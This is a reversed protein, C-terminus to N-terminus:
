RIQDADRVAGAFSLSGIRRQTHAVEAITLYKSSFGFVQTFMFWLYPQVLWKGVVPMDVAEAFARLLWYPRV